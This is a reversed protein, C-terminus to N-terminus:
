MIQQILNPGGFPKKGIILEYAIVGLAWLDNSHGSITDLYM